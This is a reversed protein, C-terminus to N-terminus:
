LLVTGHDKTCSISCHSQQPYALCVQLMFGVGLELIAFWAPVVSGAVANASALPLYRDVPLLPCAAERMHLEHGLDCLVDEPVPLVDAPLLQSVRLYYRYKQAHCKPICTANNANCPLAGSKDPESSIRQSHFFM